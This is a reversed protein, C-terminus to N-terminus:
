RRCAHMPPYILRPVANLLAQTYPHQPTNIVAAAPGIECVQGAYLVMVTDVYGAVLAIDHTILIM